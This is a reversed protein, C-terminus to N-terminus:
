AAARSDRKKPSRKPPLALFDHVPQMKDPGPSAIKGYFFKVLWDYGVGAGDAIERLTLDSSEILKLTDAKLRQAAEILNM